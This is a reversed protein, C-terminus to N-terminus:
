KSGISALYKNELARMKKKDRETKDKYGMIHLVGHIMVRHLENNVLTKFSRSNERVRDISIFIDGSVDGTEKSYDFTIIDTYTDHQLHEKNLKLLYKDSCFIYNIEGLKKKEKKIVRSIWSRLLTKQKPQFSTDENFFYIAM